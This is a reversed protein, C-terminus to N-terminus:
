MGVVHTSGQGTHDVVAAIVAAILAIWSLFAPPGDLVEGAPDLHAQLAPYSM